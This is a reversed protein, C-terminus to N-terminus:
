RATTAEAQGARRGRVCPVLMALTLVQKPVGRGKRRKGDCSVDRPLAQAPRPACAWHLRGVLVQM